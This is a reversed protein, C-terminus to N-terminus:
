DSVDFSISSLMTNLFWVEVNYHGTPFNALKNPDRELTSIIYGQQYTGSSSFIPQGNYFWKFELPIKANEPAYLLIELFVKESNAPIPKLTELVHGDSQLEFGIKLNTASIEPISSFARCSLMISLTLVSFVSLPLNTKRTEVNM